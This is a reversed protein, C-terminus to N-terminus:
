NPSRWSPGSTDSPQALAEQLFEQRELSVSRHLFVPSSLLCSLIKSSVQRNETAVRKSIKFANYPCVALIPPYTSIVISFIKISCPCSLLPLFLAQLAHSHVPLRCVSTLPPRGWTTGHKQVCLDQDPVCPCLLRHQHVLPFFAESVGSHLDSGWSVPLAPILTFWVRPLPVDLKSASYIQQPKEEQNKITPPCPLLPCSHFPCLQLGQGVTGRSTLPLWSGGCLQTRRAM